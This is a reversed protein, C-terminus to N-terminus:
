HVLVKAVCSMAAKLMDSVPRVGEICVEIPQCLLAVLHHHFAFDALVAAEDIEIRM